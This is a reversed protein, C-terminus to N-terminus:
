CVVNSRVEMSDDLENVTEGMKPKLMKYEKMLYEAASSHEIGLFKKDIPKNNSGNLTNVGGPHKHMFNTIDYLESKYEVIFKEEILKGNQQFVKTSKM